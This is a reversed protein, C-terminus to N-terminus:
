SSDPMLFQLYSLIGAVSAAMGLVVVIWHDKAENLLYQIYGGYIDRRNAETKLTGDVLRHAINAMVDVKRLTSQHLLVYDGNDFAAAEDGGALFGMDTIKNGVKRV